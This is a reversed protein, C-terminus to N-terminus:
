TDAIGLKEALDNHAGDITEVDAPSAFRQEPQARLYPCQYIRSSVHWWRYRLYRVSVLKERFKGGSLKGRQPRVENIEIDSNAIAQMVDAIGNFPDNEGM